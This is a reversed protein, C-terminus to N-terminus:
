RKVAVTEQLQEQKNHIIEKLSNNMSQLKTKENRSNIWQYNRRIAMLRSTNVIRLKLQSAHFRIFFQKLENKLKEQNRYKNKQKM